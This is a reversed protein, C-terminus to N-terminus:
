RSEPTKMQKYLTLLAIVGGTLILAVALLVMIFLVVRITGSDASSVLIVAVSMHLAGKVKWLYLSKWRGRGIWISGM